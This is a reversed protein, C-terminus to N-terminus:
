IASTPIFLEGYLDVRLAIFARKGLSKNLSNLISEHGM